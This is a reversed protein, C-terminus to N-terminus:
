NTTLSLRSYPGSWHCLRDVRKREPIMMWDRGKGRKGRGGEREREKREREAGDLKKKEKERRRM